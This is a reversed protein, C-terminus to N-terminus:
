PTITVERTTGGLIEKLPRQEISRVRIKFIVRRSRAKDEQGNGDRIPEVSGRGSASIFDLFCPRLRAATEGAPEAEDLINWAQLAVAMSRRQSLPLNDKDTGSSDTHGEVTISNIEKRFQDSCATAALKPVFDRLFDVGKPPIEDKNVAFELLGDPVMVLLGL